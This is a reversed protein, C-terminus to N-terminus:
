QKKSLVLRITRKEGTLNFRLFVLEDKIMKTEVDGSCSKIEYSSLEDDWYTLGFPMPKWNGIEYVLEIRDSTKEYTTIFLPPIKEEFDDQMNWQGVYNRVLRPKCEGKVFIMQCQSDYFLFTDPWPGAAVGGLTMTYDNVAPRIPKDKTLMYSPATSANREHYMALAKPVTTLTAGCGAVYAFFRDLMGACAEVHSAPFVQFRDTFEMEHAEQQQLFFVQDNHDTNELYEDFLMQWYAIDEGTCLGARLVDNPDTSYIVPSGTHYSAHLDRATWECAVVQGKGPHPVKYRHSDVYWSGWPIGKHTIGDWWVQEWCYGWMGQFDLEELAEIVENYIKGRAAVKTTAWPFAEQVLQWDSALRAKFADKSMGCDEMFFPSQLIIDDGYAEHWQRIQEGLVPVSGRNVIWTVPIGHAHALRATREVGDVAVGRGWPTDYHSAYSVFTYILNQPKM